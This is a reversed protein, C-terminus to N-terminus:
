MSEILRQLEEDTMDEIPRNVPTEPGATISAAGGGGALQQANDWARNLTQLEEPTPNLPDKFNLSFESYFKAKASPSAVGAASSPGRDAKRAQAERLKIMASLGQRRLARDEAQGARDERRQKKQEAWDLMAMSLKQQERAKEEVATEYRSKAEVGQGIAQGVQGIPSQGMQLPQMLAIGAQILGARNEPRSLWTKWDQQLATPQTLSPFLAM